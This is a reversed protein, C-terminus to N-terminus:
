CYRRVEKETTSGELAAEAAEVMELRRLSDELRRRNEAVEARLRDALWHLPEPPLVSKPDHSTLHAQTLPVALPHSFPTYGRTFKTPTPPHAVRVTNNGNHNKGRWM